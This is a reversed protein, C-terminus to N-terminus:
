YTTFDQSESLYQRHGSSITFSERRPFHLASDHVAYPLGSARIIGTERLSVMVANGQAVLSTVTPEQAQLLQFSNLILARTEAIGKAQCRLGFESPAYIDDRLSVV